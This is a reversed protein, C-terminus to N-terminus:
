LGNVRANISDEGYVVIIGKGAMNWIRVNRIGHGNLPSM